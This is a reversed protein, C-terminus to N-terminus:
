GRKTNPIPIFSDLERVQAQIELRFCAEERNRKYNTESLPTPITSFTKSPIVTHMSRKGLVRPSFDRGTNANGSINASYNSQKHKSVFSRKFSVVHLAVAVEKRQPGHVFLSLTLLSRANPASHLGPVEPLTNTGPAQGMTARCGTDTKLV